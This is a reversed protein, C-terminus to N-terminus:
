TKLLYHPASIDVTGEQRSEPEGEGPVQHWSAAQLRLHASFKGWGLLDRPMAAVPGQPGGLGLWEPREQRLGPLGCAVRHRASQPGDTCGRQPPSPQAPLLRSTGLPLLQWSPLHTLFCPTAM